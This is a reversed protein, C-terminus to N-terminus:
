SEPIVLDKGHAQIDANLLDIFIQNLSVDGYVEKCYDDIMRGYGKPVKLKINDLRDYFVEVKQRECEKKYAPYCEAIQDLIKNKYDDEAKIDESELDCHVLQYKIYNVIWRQMTEEDVNKLQVEIERPIGNEDFYDEYYKGDEACYERLPRNINGQKDDRLKRRRVYRQYSCERDRILREQNELARKRLEDDSIVIIDIKGCPKKSTTKQERQGLHKNIVSKMWDMCILTKKM